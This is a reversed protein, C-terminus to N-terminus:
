VKEITCKLPYENQRALEHVQNIKTTAIDFSYTGVIGRGKKHVDIMIRTAESIGKHFVTMIVSVVFEMTTYNDNLLIVRYEEPEGLEEENDTLVDSDVTSEGIPM